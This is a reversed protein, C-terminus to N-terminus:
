RCSEGENHQQISGNKFAILLHKISSLDQTHLALPWARYPIKPSKPPASALLFSPM